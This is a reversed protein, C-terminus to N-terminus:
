AFRERCALSLTAYANSLTAMANAVEVDGSDLPRGPVTLADQAYQAWEASRMLAVSGRVYGGGLAGHYAILDNITGDDAV